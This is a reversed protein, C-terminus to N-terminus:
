EQSLCHKEFCVESEESFAAKRVYNSQRGFYVKFSSKWGLEERALENLTTMYSPLNQLWNAGKRKLKVM